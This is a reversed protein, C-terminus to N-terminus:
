FLKLEPDEKKEPEPAPAIMTMVLYALSQTISAAVLSAPGRGSDPDGALVFLSIGGGVALNAITIAILERHQNREGSGIMENRRELIIALLLAPIISATAKFYETSAVKNPVLAITALYVLTLVFAQVAASRLYQANGSISDVYLTIIGLVAFLAIGAIVGYEVIAVFLLLGCVLCFLIALVTCRLRPNPRAWETTLEIISTGRSKQKTM